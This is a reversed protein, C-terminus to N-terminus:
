ASAALANVATVISTPGHDDAHPLEYLDFLNADPLQDKTAWCWTGNKLWLIPAPGKNLEPEEWPWLGWPDAGHYIQTIRDLLGRAKLDAWYADNGQHPSEWATISLIRDADLYETAFTSEWGGLSHGEIDIAEHPAHDFLWTYTATARQFPIQAVRRGSGIDFPACGADASLDSLHQRMSGESVRSGCNTLRVQGNPRRHLVSQNQVTSLRAIVTSGAAEFANVAEKEDMIYAANCLAISLALAKFDPDDM